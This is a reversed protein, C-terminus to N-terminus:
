ADARPPPTPPARLLILRGCDSADAMASPIPALSADLSGTADAEPPLPRGAVSAPGGRDLSVCAVFVHALVRERGDANLYRLEYDGSVAPPAAEYATRGVVAPTWVESGDPRTLVFHGPEDVRAAWRFRLADGPAKLVRISHAGESAAKAALPDAALTWPALVGAVLAATQLLRIKM